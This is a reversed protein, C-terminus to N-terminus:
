ICPSINESRTPKVQISENALDNLQIQILLGWFVVKIYSKKPWQPRCSQQTSVLPFIHIVFGTLSKGLRSVVGLTNATFLKGYHYRKLHGATVSYSSCKACRGTMNKNWSGQAISNQVIGIICDHIFFIIKFNQDITINFLTSPTSEYQISKM